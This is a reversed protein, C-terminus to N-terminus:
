LRLLAELRLRSRSKEKEEKSLEEDDDFGDFQRSLKKYAPM